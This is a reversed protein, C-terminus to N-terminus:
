RAIGKYFASFLRAPPVDGFFSAYHSPTYWTKFDTMARTLNLKIKRSAYIQDSLGMGALVAMYDSFANDEDFITNIAKKANQVAGITEGAIGGIATGVLSGIVGGAIIGPVGAAAGAVAGAAAGGLSGVTLGTNLSDMSFGESIPMSLISSMDIVTFSVDIGMAHGENNFGLNGVGRTVSLSDIMGLRIQCRGQDYLEVLFPSTYSQKGTALPLAGALLMALPVHLNILQSVPNGYPSVLSLSYSARPLSASSSQWHKPIDVFAAGGLAALGSIELADAAGKAFDSAATAIKGLVTGLVNDGAINGGALNFSTTRSSSSMSNIKAALESETTQNSFSESAHGTANVRFSAFASGDDMETMFFDQFSQLTDQTTPVAENEALAAGANQIPGNATAATNANTASSLSDTASTTPGPNTIKSVNSKIYTALYENYSMKDNLYTAEDTVEQIAQTMSIKSDSELKAHLAKIRKTNLRQARGAMAYVDIGGGKNFIEPILEHLQNIANVDFEYNKTFAGKDNGFLRPVIGRNVAIHQVMTNVANWYLPMAPKLYYYKSAPRQFAFRLALGILQAAVVTMVVLAGSMIFGAAVAIKGINYMVGTGRGTRALTGAGSDYFSTFFTTLSNFAPVGFRMYIVQSNDDIAESYYRGMGRDGNGVQNPTFLGKAKIDCTATFQPPPNIAFNGGPTTDTFKLSASTYIRRAFDQKDLNEKTVLFSQRVWDADRM